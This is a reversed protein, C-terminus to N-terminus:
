NQPIDVSSPYKEPASTWSNPGNRARDMRNMFRASTFLGRKAYINGVSVTTSPDVLDVLNGPEVNGHYALKALTPVSANANYASWNPAPPTGPDKVFNAFATQLTKSLGIEDASATWKSFTAFIM